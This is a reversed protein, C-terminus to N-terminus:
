TSEKDIDELVTELAAAHAERISDIVQERFFTPIALPFEADRHHFPLYLSRCNELPGGSTRHLYEKLVTWYSYAQFSTCIASAVWSSPVYRAEIWLKSIKIFEHDIIGGMGRKISYYHPSTPDMDKWSRNPDNMKLAIVQSPTLNSVINAAAAHVDGALQWDGCIFRMSIVGYALHPFASVRRDLDAVGLNVLSTWRSLERQIEGEDIYSDGGVGDRTIAMLDLDSYLSFDGRAFSGRALLAVGTAPLQHTLM